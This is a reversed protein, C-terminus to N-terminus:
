QRQEEGGAGPRPRHVGAAGAGQPDEGGTRCLTPNPPPKCGAAGWLGGGSGGLLVQQCKKLVDPTRHEALSKNYFHVADKYREEKFYSNGIRAYARRKPSPSPSSFLLAVHRPAGGGFRAGGEGRGGGM